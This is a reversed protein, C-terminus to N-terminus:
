GSRLCRISFTNDAVERQDEGISNYKNAKLPRIVLNRRIEIEREYFGEYDHNKAAEISYHGGPRIVVKGPQSGQGARGSVQTLLQFTRPHGSIRCM